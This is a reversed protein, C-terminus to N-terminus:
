IDAGGLIKERYYVDSEKLGPGEWDLIRAGDKDYFILARIGEDRGRIWTRESL